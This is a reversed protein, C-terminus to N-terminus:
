PSTLSRHRDSAPLCDAPFTVPLSNHQMQDPDESNALTGTHSIGTYLPNLFWRLIHNLILSIMGNYQRMYLIYQGLPYLREEQNDFLTQLLSGALSCLCAVINFYPM